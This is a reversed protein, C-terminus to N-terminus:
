LVEELAIKLSDSKEPNDYYRANIICKVGYAETLPTVAVGIYYLCETVAKLTENFKESDLLHTIPDLGIRAGFVNEAVEEILAEPDQNNGHDSM